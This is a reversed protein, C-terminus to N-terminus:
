EFKIGIINQWKILIKLAVLKLILSNFNRDENKHMKKNDTVSPNNPVMISTDIKEESCFKICM